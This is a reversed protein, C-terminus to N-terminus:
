RRKGRARSHQHRAKKAKAPRVEDAASAIPSTTVPAAQVPAEAPLPAPLSPPAAPASVAAIAEGDRRQGGAISLVLLAVGVAAGTLILRPRWSRTRKRETLEDVMLDGSEFAEGQQFFSQEDASFDDTSGPPLDTQAM